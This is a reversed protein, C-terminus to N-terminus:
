NKSVKELDVAVHPRKRRNTQDETDHKVATEVASSVSIDSNETESVLKYYSISLVCLLALLSSLITFYFNVDATRSLLIATLVLLTSVASIVAVSMGPSRFYGQMLHHIHERDPSFPSQGRARRRIIALLTDLYPVGLMTLLGFFHFWGPAHTGIFLIISIISYGLLLSGTDGMFITAPPRNFLLFGVVAAILPFIVFNLESIHWGTAVAALGALIIISQSSALGDIGDILNVANVSAVVLFTFLATIGIEWYWEFSV